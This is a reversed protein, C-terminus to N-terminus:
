DALEHILVCEQDESLSVMFHCKCRNWVRRLDACTQDSSQEHCTKWGVAENTLPSLSIDYVSVSLQPLM